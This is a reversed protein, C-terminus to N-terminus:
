RYARKSVSSIRALRLTMFSVVRISGRDSVIKAVNCNLKRYAALSAPMGVSMLQKVRAPRSRMQGWQLASLALFAPAPMRSVAKESAM